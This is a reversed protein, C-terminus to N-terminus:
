VVNLYSKHNIYGTLSKFSNFNKFVVNTSVRYRLKLNKVHNFLEKWTKFNDLNVMEKWQHKLEEKLKLEPYFGKSKKIFIEYGRRGIELSANVPDDYNYMLNGIFSTYVPNVDKIIQGNILCRKFLNKVFLDRKWLNKNKRNAWTNFNKFSLEEVFVYKCGFKVSLLSIDKCIEIIEHSLKNNLTKFRKDSSKVSLGIIKDTLDKVSYLHTYLIQEDEKISIGIYEPNLDIGIYRNGLKVEQKIPEFSFYIFKDTLKVQYTYGDLENLEQLKYLDRYYGRLKPITLEFHNNRDHKYIIKDNSLYLKFKRNGNQSKEGFITLPLLRSETLEQKTLKGKLYKFLINKGGFIVKTEKNKELISKSENISCQRVWADIDNINNLSKHLERIEKETKGDKLRNYNYRVLSSYQRRLDILFPKFEDTSKYPIKLTIM